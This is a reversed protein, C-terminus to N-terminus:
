SKQPAKQQKLPNSYPIFMIRVRSTQLCNQRRRQPVFQARVLFAHKLSSNFAREEALVSMQVSSQKESPWSGYAFSDVRCVTM